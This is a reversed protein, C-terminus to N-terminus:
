GAIYECGYIGVTECMKQLLRAYGACVGKRYRYTDDADRIRYANDYAINEKMMLALFHTIKMMILTKLHM